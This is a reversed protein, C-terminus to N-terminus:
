FVKLHSSNKLEYGSAYKTFVVFTCSINKVRSGIQMTCQATCHGFSSKSQLLLYLLIGIAYLYRQQHNNLTPSRVRCTLISTIKALILHLNVM